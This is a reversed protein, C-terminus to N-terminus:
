GTPVPPRPAATPPTEDPTRRRTMMPVSVVIAVVGLGLLVLPITTGYLEIQDLADRARQVENAVNAPTYGVTSEVLPFTVDPLGAMGVSITSVKSLDVIIGTTPEVSYSDVTRYTYALPIDDPLLPLAAELQERLDAPADVAELLGALQDKPLSTPAGPIQDAAPEGSFDGGYEYVPLGDVTAEGRYMVHATDEAEQVWGVYNVKESGIPFGVVLGEADEVPEEGFNPVVHMTTRDIAYVYERESVTEGSDVAKIVSSDVVRARDGETELVRLRRDVTVEVDQAAAGELDGDQLAAPDVATLTGAYQVKEDTDAPLQQGNPVVVFALAAAGVLMLLGVVAVVVGWRRM